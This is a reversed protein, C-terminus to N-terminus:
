GIARRVDTIEISNVDKIKSLETEILDPDLEEKWGIMFVLSKLGFAVPVEEVKHLIAGIEKLRKEVNKQLNKMDVSPSIPMVRFIVACLAM